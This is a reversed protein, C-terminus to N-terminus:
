CMNKRFSERFSINESFCINKSKKMFIEIEFKVRKGSILFFSANSHIFTSLIERNEL